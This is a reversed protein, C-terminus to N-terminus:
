VKEFNIYRLFEGNVLEFNMRYRDGEMLEPDGESNAGYYLLTFEVSCTNGTITTVMDKADNGNGMGWEFGTLLWDNEPDYEFNSGFDYEFDEIGFVEYVVREIEAIPLYYSHGEIMGFSGIYPTYMDFNKASGAFIAAHMVFNAALNDTVEISEGEFNKKNMVQLFHRVLSQAQMEFSAKRFPESANNSVLRLFKGDDDEMVDFVMESLVFQKGLEDQWVLLLMKVSFRNESINVSHGYSILKNPMGCGATSMEYCDTEPDFTPVNEDPTYDVGFYKLLYKNGLREPVRFFFGEEDMAEEGVAEYLEQNFFWLCVYDVFEETSEFSKAGKWGSLLVMDEYGEESYFFSEAEYKEVKKAEYPEESFVPVSPEKIEPKEDTWGLKIKWAKIEDGYSVALLTETEKCYVVKQYQNPLYTDYYNGTSYEKIYLKGDKGIVAFDKEALLANPSSEIETQSGDSLDIVFTKWSGNEQLEDYVFHKEDACWNKAGVANFEAIKNGYISYIMEIHENQLLMYKGDPSWSIFESDKGPEIVYVENYDEINRVTIHNKSIAYLGNSSVERPFDDLKILESELTEPNISLVEVSYKNSFVVKAKGNKEYVSVEKSENFFLEEVFEMKGAGFDYLFVRIYVGSGVFPDEEKFSIFLAKNNEIFQFDLIEGRGNAFGEASLNEAPIIESSIQEIYLKSEEETVVIEADNEVSKTPDVIEVNWKSCGSFLMAFVIALFILKKM